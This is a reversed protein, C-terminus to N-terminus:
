LRTVAVWSQMVATDKKSHDLAVQLGLRPCICNALGFLHQNAASVPITGDLLVHELWDGKSRTHSDAAEKNRCLMM